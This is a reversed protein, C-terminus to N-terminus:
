FSVTGLTAISGLPVGINSNPTTLNFATIKASTVPDVTNYIATRFADEQV